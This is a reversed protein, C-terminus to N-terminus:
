FLKVATASCSLSYIDTLKVNITSILKKDRANIQHQTKYCYKNVITKRGTNGNNITIEARPPLDDAVNDVVVTSAIRSQRRCRGGTNNVAHGQDEKDVAPQKTLCIKCILITLVHVTITFPIYLYPWLMPHSLKVYSIRLFSIVNFLSHEM